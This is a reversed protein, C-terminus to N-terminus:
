EWEITMNHKAALEQWVPMDSLNINLTHSTTIARITIHESEDVVSEAVATPALSLVLALALLLSLFRKKM